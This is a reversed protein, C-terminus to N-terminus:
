GVLSGDDSVTVPHADPTSNGLQDTPVSQQTFVTFYAALQPQQNDVIVAGDQWIDNHDNHDDVGDNIFGGGSGQNMHVDHIGGGETYTRGFIYVDWQNNMANILLRKLSAVPEVEESGDMVDSNRWPGTGNLIDSRLFDLSPLPNKGTLDTFGPATSRLTAIVPHQFDFVLKYQLLDDSDNTGVNIASDWQAFSGGPMAVNLPAHLHYQIENKHGAHQLTPPGVVKCKVMGYDLM